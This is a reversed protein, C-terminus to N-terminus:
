QNRCQEGGSTVTRNEIFKELDSLKYLVRGGVKLFPLPYRKTCRWIVLTEKKLRLFNAAESTTMLEIQKM